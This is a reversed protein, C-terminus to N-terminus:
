QYAALASCPSGSGRAWCILDEESHQLHPSSILCHARRQTAPHMKRGERLTETVQELRCSRDVWGPSHPMVLRRCRGGRVTGWCGLPKWLLAPQCTSPSSILACTRLGRNPRHRDRGLSCNPQFRRRSSVLLAVWVQLLADADAGHSAQTQREQM